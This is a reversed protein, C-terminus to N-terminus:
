LAAPPPVTPPEAWFCGQLCCTHPSTKGTKKWPKSHERGRDRGCPFCSLAGLKERGIPPVPHEGGGGGAALSPTLHLWGSTHKLQQHPQNLQLSGSGVSQFVWSGRAPVLIMRSLRKRAKGPLCKINGPCSSGCPM